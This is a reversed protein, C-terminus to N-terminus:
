SADRNGGKPSSMAVRLILAEGAIQVVYGLAMAMAAGNLGARPILVAASAATTGLVAAHLPVQERFRRAATIAYGLLSAIYGVGGALMIWVLLEVRDAYDSKYALTLIARGFVVAGAVALASLLAGALLMQATLKWFAEREGASFLKALRPTAAQGIANVFLSGATILSALASFYGLERTNWELAIFYRPANSVLSVLVLVAGLPLAARFLTWLVGPSPAASADDSPQAALLGAVGLNSDYILLVAARAVLVAALGIALDGTFWLASALAAVSLLGRAILSMAVRDLRERQQMLGHYTDSLWEIAQACGVLVIAPSDGALGGRWLAFAAIGAVALSLMLRRLHLYAGFPYEGKSDTALLARLNLQAFMLVPVTIALALAYRGVMDVNGLKALISVMSWQCASYVGMGASYWLAGSRVSRAGAAPALPVAAHTKALSPNM